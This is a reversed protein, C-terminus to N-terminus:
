YVFAAGSHRANENVPDGNIGTADSNDRYAGIALTHGDGNLSVSNGFSLERGFGVYSSQDSNTAKVYSLQVWNFSNPVRQFVYAAGVEVNVGQTQDGNIGIAMSDEGEAGVALLSGDDNLDLATGFFETRVTNSAKIYATQIWLGNDRTYVYVAGADNASNDTQAPPNVGIGGGDERRAGVALVNGDASIALASGFMDDADTNSPKVYTDQRWQGNTNAFVYVAGTGAYQSGTGAASNNSQDGNIGTASSDESIAAAALMTGDANIALASGFRDGAESNSAKIYAQQIWAEGTRTFVYIAGSEAADNNHPDANIGTGASDEGLAGVALTNGDASLAVAHGFQDQSDTNSAKLYAQLAWVGASRTYVYAAGANSVDNNAQDGNVGVASSGEGTAGIVLTNGDTSLALSSGFRDALDTNPAKVYAQQAWGTANASFVYVAGSDSESNDTENGNLFVANSDEDNATVALTQGDGSLSLTWGFMDGGDPSRQQRGETNSAKFFGIAGLMLTEVGVQNSDTCGASNCAQLLFRVNKWDTLHVAIPLYFRTERIAIDTAVETFGSLGTPDMMLRYSTADPVTAWDFVLHKPSAGVGLIPPGPPLPPTGDDDVIIVPITAPSGLVAGGTPNFLRLNFVHDDEDETDDAIVIDVRKTAADGDAFSVITQLAEYDDGATADGDSTAIDVRIDGSSGGTRTIEVTATGHQEAVTYSAAGFQLSGAQPLDDDRITLTATAPSGINGDYDESDPAISLIVTQDTEQEVDDLIPVSVTHPGFDGDAFVVRAHTPVYDESTATGDSTSVNVVILGFDSQSRSLNVSASGATEDVSFSDSTFAVFGGHPDDNDVITVETTDQAGITACGAPSDLTLTLTEDPEDLDDDIIPLELVRAASSGDGFRVVLEQPVFDEDPDASGGSLTVRATVLGTTSGSRTIQIFPPLDPADEAIRFNVAEFQLIGGDTTVPDCDPPIPSSGAPPKEPPANEIELMELGTTEFSIGGDPAGPEFAAPDRLFSVTGGEPSYNNRAVILAESWVEFEAGVPVSSLDVEVPIPAVLKAFAVQGPNVYPEAGAEPDLEFNSTSWLESEADAAIKQVLEWKTNRGAPDAPDIQGALYMGGHVNFFTEDEEVTAGPQIGRIRMDAGTWLAGISGAAHTDDYALMHAKTIELRFRANDATKRFRWYTDLTVFHSQAHIGYGPPSEAALWYTKGTENSHVVGSGGPQDLHLQFLETTNLGSVGGLPVVPGRDFFYIQHLVGGEKEGELLGQSEHWTLSNDFRYIRYPGGCVVEVDTVDSDAIVGTGNKVRCEQDPDTPKQEVDVIYPEGINLLTDFTFPGDAGIDYTEIVLFQTNGNLEIERALNVILGSGLLGNVTGGVTADGCRVAVDIVDETGMIGFGNEV